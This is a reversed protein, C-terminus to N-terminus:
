NKQENYMYHSDSSKDGLTGTPMINFALSYRVLDSNNKEMIHQMESPFFLILGNRPRFRWEKSNYINYKTPILYNRKDSFDHFVIDGTKEDVQLYLVGSYMCNQHNHLKGKKGKELVTFWSTTIKFTNTYNLVTNFFYKFENTIIKKLFTFKEKELVYLDNIKTENKNEGYPKIAYDITSIIKKTDLNLTNEYIAKSFIPSTIGYM